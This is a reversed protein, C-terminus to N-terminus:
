KIADINIVFFRDKAAKPVSNEIYEEAHFPYDFIATVMTRDKGDDYNKGDVKYAVAWKCFEYAKM